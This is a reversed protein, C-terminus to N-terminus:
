WNSRCKAPSASKGSFSVSGRPPKRAREVNVTVRTGGAARATAWRVQVSVHGREFDRRLRDRLEADLAALDSPLKAALNFFRHNVTRIEVRLTGGAVSGEAAGFGTMSLPM